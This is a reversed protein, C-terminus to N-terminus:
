KRVNLPFLADLSVGNGESNNNTKGKDPVGTTNSLGELKKFKQQLSQVKSERAIELALKDISGKNFRLYSILLDQELGEKEADIMEQSQGRDNIPRSMYDTFAQRKNVPIIINGINGKQVTSNVERWYNEVQINSDIQQQKVQQERQSNVEAQKNDLFMLSSALAKNLEEEGAKKLIEVLQDPNPNGQAVFSKKILDLKATEELRKIDINKYDINSSTYNEATGGLAIHQAYAKLEPNNDLFSNVTKRQVQKISENVVHIIGQNTEEVNFDTPFEIGFNEAIDNILPAIVSNDSLVQEKTRIIEGKDNVVNGETDFPLEEKELYNKLKDSSLVIINDKDVLNGKEDVSNGKFTNILLDRYSKDEESLTSDNRFKAVTQEFTEGQPTNNNQNNDPNSADINQQQNSSSQNNDSQNNDVQGGENGSPPVIPPVGNLNTSMVVNDLTIAPKNDPNGTGQGEM